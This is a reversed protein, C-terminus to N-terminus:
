GLKFLRRAEFHDVIASAADEFTTSSGIAGHIDASLTGYLEKVSRFRGKFDNPLTVMYQELVEDAKADPSAGSAARAFQEILTRLM